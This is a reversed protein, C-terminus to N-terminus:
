SKIKLLKEGLRFDEITNIDISREFPMEYAIINKTYLTNRMINKVTTILIAPGNRVYINDSKFRNRLFNVTHNKNIKILKSIYFPSVLKTVSVLSSFKSKQFLNLSKNIDYATRLPSTPQLLIINDFIKGSHKIADKIVPLMKAKDNSLKASRLHNIKLNYNKEVLKKIKLCDTSIYIHDIKKSKLSEEITWCILPKGYFLKLNKNKVRKSGKRAPIIALTKTM